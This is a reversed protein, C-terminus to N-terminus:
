GFIRTYAKKLEKEIKRNSIEENFDLHIAAWRKSRDDVRALEHEEHLDFCVIMGPTQAKGALTEQWVLFGKGQLILVASYRYGIHRDTHSEAGSSYLLGTSFHQNDSLYDQKYITLVELTDTEKKSWWKLHNVGLLEISSQWERTGKDM